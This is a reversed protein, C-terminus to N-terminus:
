KKVEYTELMAKNMVLIGRTTTVALANLINAPSYMANGMWRYCNLVIQRGIQATMKYGVGKGESEEEAAVKLFDDGEKVVEKRLQKLKGEERQYNAVLDLTQLVVEISTKISELSVVDVDVRETLDNKDAYSDIKYKWQGINYTTTNVDAFSYLAKNGPLIASKHIKKTDKTDFVGMVSSPIKGDGKTAMSTLYEEITKLLDKVTKDVDKLLKDKNELSKLLKRVYDEGLNDYVFVKVEKLLNLLNNPVDKINQNKAILPRVNVNVTKKSTTAKKSIYSKTVELLKKSDKTMSKVNDFIARYLKVMTDAIKQFIKKITEWVKAMRGQKKKDKSDTSKDDVVALSKSTTALEKSGSEDVREYEGEITEELGINSLLININRNLFDEKDGCEIGELSLIADNVSCLQEISYELNAYESYIDQFESFSQFENLSELSLDVNAQFSDERLLERLVSNM